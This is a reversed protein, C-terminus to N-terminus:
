KGKFEAFTQLIKAVVAPSPEGKLELTEDAYPSLGAFDGIQVSYLSTKFLEIDNQDNGFAVFDRGFHNLVTSAKTM